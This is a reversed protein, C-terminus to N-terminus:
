ISYPLGLWHDFGRATPLFQPRQGLHWQGFMLALLIQIHSSCILFVCPFRCPHCAKGICMTDYGAHQLHEALTTENLPLGDVADSPFTLPYVGSRLHM